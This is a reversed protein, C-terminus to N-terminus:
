CGGQLPLKDLEVGHLGGGSFGFRGISGMRVFCDYLSQFWCGLFM